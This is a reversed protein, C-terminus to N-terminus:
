ATAAEPDEAPAPLEAAETNRTRGLRTVVLGAVVLITGVV